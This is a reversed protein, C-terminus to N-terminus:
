YKSLKFNLLLKYFCLSLDVLSISQRHNNQSYVTRSSYKRVSKHSQMLLVKAKVTNSLIMKRFCCFMAPNVHPSAYPKRIKAGIKVFDLKLLIYLDAELTFISYVSLNTQKM